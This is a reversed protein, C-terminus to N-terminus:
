GVAFFQFTKVKPEPNLAMLQVANFLAMLPDVKATGSAAKTILAANGKPEVKANSVCFNMLRTGGHFLRKEALKRETVSIAGILKWGQSVGFILELPIKLDVLAQLMVKHTKEPDM